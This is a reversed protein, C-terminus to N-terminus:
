MRHQNNECSEKNIPNGSCFAGNDGPEVAHHQTTTGACAAALLALAAILTFRASTDLTM